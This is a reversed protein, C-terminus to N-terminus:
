RGVSEAFCTGSRFFGQLEIRGSRLRVSREAIDLQVIVPIKRAGFLLQAPGHLPIGVVGGSMVPEAVHERRAAIELARVLLKAPGELQIRYGNRHAGVQTEFEM